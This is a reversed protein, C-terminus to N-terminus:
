WKRGTSPLPMQEVGESLEGCRLAGEPSTEKAAFRFDRFVRFRHRLRLFGYAKEPLPKDFSLREDVAFAGPLWQLPDAQLVKEAVLGGAETRVEFVLEYPLHLRAVGRNVGELRLSVSSAGTRQVTSRLPVLRAGAWLDIKRMLTRKAPDDAICPPDFPCTNVISVHNTLMWDLAYELTHWKEDISRASGYSELWVPRHKWVDGMQPVNVYKDTGIWRRFHHPSGVGDRRIGVRFGDSAQDLAYRLCEWDDTMFVVPTRAFSQLYWDVYQRRVEIPYVKAPVAKV